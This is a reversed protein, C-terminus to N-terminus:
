KRIEPQESTGQNSIKKRRCERVTRNIRKRRCSDGCLASSHHSPVFSEGCERCVRSVPVWGVREERKRRDRVQRRKREDRCEVSCVIRKLTETVPILGGCVVCERPERQSRMRDSIKKNHRRHAAKRRERRCDDSCVKKRSPSDLPMRGGCEVCRRTLNKKRQAEGLERSRARSRELNKKRRCADSCMKTNAPSYEGIDGGCIECKRPPGNWPKRQCLVVGGPPRGEKKREQYRRNVAKRRRSYRCGQSCVVSDVPFTVPIEGGCESCKRDLLGRERLREVKWGLERCDHSCWKQGRRYPTFRRGCGKCKEKEKPRVRNKHFLMMMAEPDSILIEAIRECREAHNM